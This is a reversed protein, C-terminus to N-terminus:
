LAAMANAYTGTLSRKSRPHRVPHASTGRSCERRSCLRAQQYSGCVSNAAAHVKCMQARGDGGAVGRWSILAAKATVPPVVRSSVNACYQLLCARRVQMPQQYAPTCSRVRLQATGARISGAVAVAAMLSLSRHKHAHLQTQRSGLRVNTIGQQAERCGPPHSGTPQATTGRRAPWGQWPAAASAPQSGQRMSPEFQVLITHQKSQHGEQTQVEKNLAAAVTEFPTGQPWWKGASGACSQGVQGAPLRQQRPAPCAGEFAEFCAHM